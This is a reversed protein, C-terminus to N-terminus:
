DLTEKEIREPIEIEFVHNAETITEIIKKVGYDSIFNFRFDYRGLNTNRKMCVDIAELVDDEELFQNDALYIKKLNKAVSTGKLVQITGANRLHNGSLIMEELQSQTYILIEFLHRAGSEDINCYTLSLQIINKNMSLGEALFKLGEAGFSNHDLKLHTLNTKSNPMLLRGIHECGLPTIKNDLLELMVVADCITIYQCVSRCGEDESDTKWLRICKTHQYSVSRLADMLARTGQWGLPEWINFKVMPSRDDMYENDYKDKVIKSVPIELAKCNKVYQKYFQETSMDEGDEGPKNKKPGM